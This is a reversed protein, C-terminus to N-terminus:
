ELGIIEADAFASEGRGDRGDCIRLRGFEDLGGFTGRRPPAPDADFLGQALVVDHNAFAGCQMAHQQFRRLHQDIRM